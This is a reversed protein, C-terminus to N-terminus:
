FPKRGVKMGMLDVSFLAEVVPPETTNKWSAQVGASIMFPIRLIYFDALLEGGFSRFSEKSNIDVRGTTNFHSNKTGEAYDYFAGGRIRKLYFALPINLDPYAIPLYYDASYLQLKQSIINNYGRPFSARNALIFKVPNQVENEYRLKISHNHIFGPFFLATKLTSINGYLAKDDPYFTYAYDIVQAWEPYIDRVSSLSYNMFYFRGTVKNQGNDYVKKDSRYIYSNSYSSSLAPQFYQSFRGASFRLPVYVTNTFTFYSSVEQPDPDSSKAKIIVPNAGYDLQSELVPYQGQLTVRTHIRSTKDSAYEYGITSIVTSLLNQSMITVGPRATTPDSKIQEIDAYLPMWSHIGFIHGVKRYRVPKYVDTSVINGTKITDFRNILYSKDKGESYSFTHSDNIRAISINSGSSSYDSFAMMGGSLSPDGAGFRSNTIQMIESGPTKLYINDTGSVSSVFYLSDNRLFSASLDNRSPVVLTKWTKSDLSCAMIGEGEESLTTVTISKGDASWCPRQPFANGPVPIKNIIEGTYSNLIVISNENEVSNETAAIMNGEESLAVALYRSKPSLRRFSREKIDMIMIVRYERNEWRPDPREEVWAIQGAAFSFVFPYISGPTFLRKESRDSLRLLVFEPTHYFTTKIAIVSDKGTFVPSYYNIYEKKKPPNVPEYITPGVSEEERKWLVRLSDFAERYLGAKTIGANTRLSYNVPNFIFPARATLDLTKNWIQPGYKSLAWTVMQYGYQYHDPVENRFSGAVMKDYSFMKPQELAIAKMEKQFSATRGRGSPSLLSEAFVADGEMFWFPLLAAVAGTFQEGAIVSMVRTFGSNLSAMQEVHTLEHTTLQERTDLPIGDQEPTPYLEMRKPALAVYGNSLITYNHIVVPIRIKREPYLLKLRILSEDLSKAYKLGEQSYSEPYVLRFNRTKIQLWRLSAPDQGTDFFQANAKLSAILLFLFIVLSYKM